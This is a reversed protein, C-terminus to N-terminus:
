EESNAEKEESKKLIFGVIDYSGSNKYLEHGTKEETRGNDDEWVVKFRQYNKFKFNLEDNPPAEYAPNDKGCRKCFKFINTTTRVMMGMEKDMYNQNVKEEWKHGAILCSLGM